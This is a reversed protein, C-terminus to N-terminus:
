LSSRLNRLFGHYVGPPINQVAAPPIQDAALRDISTLTDARRERLRAICAEARELNSDRMAALYAVIIQATTPESTSEASAATSTSSYQSNGEERALLRDMARREAQLAAEHILDQDDSALPLVDLENEPIPVYVGKGCAPCRDQRGAADRAFTITRGCSPCHIQIQV